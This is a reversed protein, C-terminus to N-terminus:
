VQSYTKQKEIESKSLITCVWIEVKKVVESAMAM